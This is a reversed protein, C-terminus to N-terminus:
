QYSTVHFKGRIKNLTVIAKGNPKFLLVHKVEEGSIREIYNQVSDKTTKYHLGLVYLKNKEYLVDSHVFGISVAYSEPPLRRAGPHDSTGVYLLFFFTQIAIQM